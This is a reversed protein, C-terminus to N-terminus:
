SCPTAPRPKWAARRSPAAATPGPTRTSRAGAGGEANMSVEGRRASVDRTRPDKHPNPRRTRRPAHPAPHVRAIRSGLADTSVNTDIAGTTPAAKKIRAPSTASSNPARRAPAPPTNTYRTVVIAPNAAARYPRRDACPASGDGGPCIASGLFSGQAARDGTGGLEVDDRPGPRLDWRSRGAPDGGPRRASRGARPRRDGRRSLRGSNSTADAMTGPAPDGMGSRHRRLAVHESCGPRGGLVRGSRRLATQRLPRGDAAPTRSRSRRKSRRPRGSTDPGVPQVRGRQLLVPRARRSEACVDPGHNPPLARLSREPRGTHGAPAQGPLGGPFRHVPVRARHAGRAVHGQDHTG